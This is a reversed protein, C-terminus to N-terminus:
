LSLSSTSGVTLSRCTSGDGVSWCGELAVVPIKEISILALRHNNSNCSLRERSSKTKTRANEINNQDKM